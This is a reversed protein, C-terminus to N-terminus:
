ARNVTILTDNIDTTSLIRSLEKSKEIVSKHGIIITNQSCRSLGVNLRQQNLFGIGNTRGLTLIGNEFECGQISDIIQGDIKLKRLLELQSKYPTMVTIPEPKITQVILSVLQSEFECCTETTDHQCGEVVIMAFRSSKPATAIMENDYFNTSIVYNTTGDFRFQNRLKLITSNIQHLRSLCSMVQTNSESHCGLQMSDGALLLFKLRKVAYIAAMAELFSVRGAEDIIVITKTLKSLSKLPKNVTSLVVPFDDPIVNRRKVEYHKGNSVHYKTLRRPLKSEDSMVCFKINKDILKNAMNCIQHHTPALYIIKYKDVYKAVVNSCMTSKGAGPCGEIGMIDYKNIVPIERDRITSVKPIEPILLKNIIPNKAEPLQQICREFRAITFDNSRDPSVVEESNLTGKVKVLNNTVHILQGTSTVLRESETKVCSPLRMEYINWCNPLSERHLFVVTSEWKESPEEKRSERCLRFQKKLIEMESRFQMM